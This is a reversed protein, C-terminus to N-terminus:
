TWSRSQLGQLAAFAEKVAVAVTDTLEKKAKADDMKGRKACEAAYENYETATFQVTM